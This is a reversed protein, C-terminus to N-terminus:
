YLDNFIKINETILEYDPNIYEQLTSIKKHGTMKMIANLNVNNNVLNTIFTRRGTHFTILDYKPADENKKGYVYYGKFEDITKLAEHIYKNVNVDSYQKLNYNYKELIHTAFRSLPVEAKEKTKQTNLQLIKGGKKEKVMAKKVHSVDSIRLGTHCAFLFLDIAIQHTDREFKEGQLLKVEEISLAYHNNDEVRIKFKSLVEVSPLLNNALLWGGFNKLCIFRKHRTKSSQKSTLFNYGEIRPREKSLFQNFMELWNRNVIANLPISHTVHKYDLLANYTSRYDKLSQQSRDPNNFFVIKDQLYKHYYDTLEAGSVRKVNDSNLKFQKKVFDCDPKIGHETVYGVITNEIREHVRQITKNKQEYENDSPKVKGAKKDFDKEKVTVTTIQRFTAKHKYYVIVSKENNANKRYLKISSYAM